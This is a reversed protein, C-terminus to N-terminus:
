QAEAIWWSATTTMGVADTTNIQFAIVANSGVFALAPYLGDSTMPDAHVEQVNWSTGDYRALYLGDDAPDCTTGVKPSCRYYAIAPDGNEDFALSPYQGTNGNQDVTMPSSWTSGDMSTMYYLTSTTADHYALAFLGQRSIAFGLQGDVAAPAIRAATWGGDAEQASLAGGVTDLDLYVGPEMGTQNYSLVAPLGAPTLAVRTYTGSGRAVDITLVQDGNSGELFEVDSKAFDDNAFGFHVDRYALMANDSSDFALAPWWGTVDGENCVNQICQGAQGGVLGDSMSGQSKQSPTGFTGDSATTLFVDNSGCRESAPPMGVGTFAISPNGKSDFALGVGTTSEYPQSAVTQASFSGGGVTGQAYCVNWLEPTSMAIPGLPMVACPQMTGTYALSAVGITTGSVAITSQTGAQGCGLSVFAFPAGGDDGGDSPPVYVQAPPPPSKTCGVIAVAAVVALGFRSFADLSVRPERRRRTPM